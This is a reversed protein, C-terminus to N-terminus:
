IRTGQVKRPKDSGSSGNLSESSVRSSPKVTARPVCTIRTQGVSPMSSVSFGKRSAYIAQINNYESDERATRRAFPLPVRQHSSCPQCIGALPPSVKPCAASGCNGPRFIHAMCRQLCRSRITETGYVGCRVPMSLDRLCTAWLPRSRFGCCPLRGVRSQIRWPWCTHSQGPSGVTALFM